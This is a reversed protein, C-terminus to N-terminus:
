IEQGIYIDNGDPDRVTAERMGYEPRDKVTATLPQGVAETQAVDHDVGRRARGVSRGHESGVRLQLLDCLRVREVADVERALLERRHEVEAVVADRRDLAHQCTKVVLEGPRAWRLLRHRPECLHEAAVDAFDETAVVAAVPARNVDVPLRHRSDAAVAVQLEPRPHADAIAQEVPGLVVNPVVVLSQQPLWYKKAHPIANESPPDQRMLRLM